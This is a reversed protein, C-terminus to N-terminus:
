DSANLVEREVYARICNWTHFDLNLSNPHWRVLTFWGDAGPTVSTQTCDPGNCMTLKSM